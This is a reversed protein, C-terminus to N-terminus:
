PSMHGDSADTVACLVVYATAYKGAAAPVITNTRVANGFNGNMLAGIAKDRVGSGFAFEGSLKSIADRVVLTSM